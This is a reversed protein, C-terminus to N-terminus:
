SFVFRKGTFGVTLFSSAEKIRDEDRKETKHSSNLHSAILKQKLFKAQLSFSLYYLVTVM